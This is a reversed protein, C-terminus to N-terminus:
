IVLSSGKREPLNGGPIFFSKGPGSGSPHADRERKKEREGKEIILHHRKGQEKRLLSHLVSKGRALELTLATDKGWIRGRRERFLLHVRKKEMYTTVGGRQRVHNAQLRKRWVRILGAVTL